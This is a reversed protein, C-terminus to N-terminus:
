FRSVIYEALWRKLGETERGGAPFCDGCRQDEVLFVDGFGLFSMMVGHIDTTDKLGFVPLRSISIQACKLPIAQTPDPTIM